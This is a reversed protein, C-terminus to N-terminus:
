WVERGGKAVRLFEGAEFHGARLRDWFDAYESSEASDGPCLLRHHQGQIERLTYGVIDLFNQNATIATGDIALEIVALSRDLATVLGSEESFPRDADSSASAPMPTTSRLPRRFRPSPDCARRLPCM